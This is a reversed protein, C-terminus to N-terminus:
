QSRFCAVRLAHHENADPEADMLEVQVRVAAVQRGVRADGASSSSRKSASRITTPITSRTTM